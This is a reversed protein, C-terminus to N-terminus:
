SISFLMSLNQTDKDELIKIINRTGDYMLDVRVPKRNVEGRSNRLVEIVPRTTTQCDKEVVRAIEKTNLLVYMGLEFFHSEKLLDKMESM